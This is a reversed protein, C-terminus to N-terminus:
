RLLLHRMLHAHSSSPVVYKKMQSSITQSAYNRQSKSADGTSTSRARNAPVPDTYQFASPIKRSRVKASSAPTSPTSPKYRDIAVPIRSENARKPNTVALKVDDIRYVGDDDPKNSKLIFAQQFTLALAYSRKGEEQTLVIHHIRENERQYTAKVGDPFCFLSLNSFVAPMIYQKPSRVGSSGATIPSSRGSGSGTSHSDLRHMPPYSADISESSRAKPYIARDATLIALVSSQLLASFISGGPQSEPDTTLGRESSFGVCVLSDVFANLLPM